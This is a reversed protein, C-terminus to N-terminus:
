LGLYSECYRSGRYVELRLSGREPDELLDDLLVYLRDEFGALCGREM